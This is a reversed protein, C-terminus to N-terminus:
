GAHDDADGPRERRATLRDIETRLNKLEALVADEFARSRREQPQEDERVFFSAVAATTIALLVFGVVSIAASLLQGGVTTPTDVFGVTAALTIAWWVGEWFSGVTDTELAAFGGGGLLIVAAALPVLYRLWRSGVSRVPTLERSQTIEM